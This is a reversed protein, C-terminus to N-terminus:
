LATCIRYLWKSVVINAKGPYRYMSSWKGTKHLPKLPVALSTQLNARGVSLQFHKSRVQETSSEQRPRRADGRNSVSLHYSIPMSM